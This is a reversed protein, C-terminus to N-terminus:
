YAFMRMKNKNRSINWNKSKTDNWKLQIPVCYPITNQFFKVRTVVFRFIHTVLDYTQYVRLSTIVTSILPFQTHIHIKQSLFSFICIIFTDQFLPFVGRLKKCLWKNLFTKKKAPPLRKHVYLYTLSFLSNCGGLLHAIWLDTFYCCCM